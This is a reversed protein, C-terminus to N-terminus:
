NSVGIKATVCLTRVKETRYYDRHRLKLSLKFLKGQFACCAVAKAGVIEEMNCGSEQESAVGEPGKVHFRHSECFELSEPNASCRLRNGEKLNSHVGTKYKPSIRCISEVAGCDGQMPAAATSNIRGAVRM